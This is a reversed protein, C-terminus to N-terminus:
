FRNTEIYLSSGCRGVNIFMLVTPEPGWVETEWKEEEKILLKSTLTGLSWELVMKVELLSSWIKRECSQTRGGFGVPLKWNFSSNLLRQDKQSDAELHASFKPASVSEQPPSHTLVCGDTARSMKRLRKRGAGLLFRRFIHSQAWRLIFYKEFVRHSAFDIVFIVSHFIFGATCSSSASSSTLESLCFFKQTKQRYPSLM